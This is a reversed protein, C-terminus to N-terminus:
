DFLTENFKLMFDINVGLFIENEQCIIIIGDINSTM